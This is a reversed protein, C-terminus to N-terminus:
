RLMYVSSMSPTVNASPTTLSPTLTPYTVPQTSGTPTPYSAAAQIIESVCFDFFCYDRSAISFSV